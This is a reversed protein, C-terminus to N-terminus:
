CDHLKFFSIGLFPTKNAKSICHITNEFKERQGFVRSHDKVIKEYYYSELSLSFIGSSIHTTIAGHSNAIHPWSTETHLDTLM